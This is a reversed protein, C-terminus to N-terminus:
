GKFNTSQPHYKRIQELTHSFHKKNSFAAYKLRITPTMDGDSIDTSMFRFDELNPM